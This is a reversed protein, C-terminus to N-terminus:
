GPYWTIGLDKRVEHDLEAVEFFGKAGGRFCFKFCKSFIKVFWITLIRKVPWFQYLFTRAMFNCWELDFIGVSESEVPDFVYFFQDALKRIWNRNEAVLRTSPKQAIEFIKYFPAWFNELNIQSLVAYIDICTKQQFFPFEFMILPCSRVNM